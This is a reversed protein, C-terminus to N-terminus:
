GAESHHAATCARVAAVLESVEFPKALVRCVGAPLGDRLLHLAATVVIVHPLLRSACSRIQELLELGTMEPMALDLVVLDYRGGGGLLCAAAERGDVAEAVTFDERRLIHAILTRIADDDEIVLARPVRTSM